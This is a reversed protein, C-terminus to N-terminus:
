PEGASAPTVAPLLVQVAHEAADPVLRIRGDRQLQGDVTVEAGGDADAAVRAARSVEIRYTANGFRYHVRYGPWAAPLCPMVQLTDAERRLGLLSELVLRYMWGASGTYWSWGGRGVHPACGYVDAAVVYPESRYISVGEPTRGHNVPNVLSLM